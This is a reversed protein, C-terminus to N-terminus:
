VKEKIVKDFHAFYGSTFAYRVHSFNAKSKELGEGITEGKSFASPTNLWKQYSKEIDSM